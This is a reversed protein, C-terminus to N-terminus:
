NNSQKTLWDTLLSEVLESMDEDGQTLLNVKVKLHLDKPIYVGVLKYAPNSRKGLQVNKPDASRLPEQAPEAITTSIPDPAEEQDHHVTEFSEALNAFLNQKKTM